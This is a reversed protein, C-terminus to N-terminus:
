YTLLVYKENQYERLGQLGGERGFGSLKVGGFPASSDSIATGNLGLMGAEIQDVLRMARASDSTFAYSALGVDSDNAWAIGQEETDFPILALMPGFTEERCFLMKQSADRLLVPEVFYGPLDNQSKARALETAGLELADQYHRDFKEQGARNILPGIDVGEQLGEGVKLAQVKVKLKQLLAEYIGRQAYVRNICICTQGSNRFKAAMIETAALDLNADDFVLAPANGGLELGLRHLREASNKMLWQGVRTSGTFSIKNILPSQTFVEGAQEAPAIVCNFVGDPLGAQKALQAFALATLPTLESPKAVVTCGAALAASTKRALMALPFNWPTIQAAVGLPRYSVIRKEAANETKTFEGPSHHIVQAYWSFYSMAYQVEALAESLPKGQELSMLRALDDQNTAMLQQWRMLVESRQTLTSQSWSKFAEQAADIAENLAAVDAYAFSALRALNAPNEVDIAETGRGQQWSGAIFHATKFLESNKLHIM